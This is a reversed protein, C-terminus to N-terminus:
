ELNDNVEPLQGLEIIETKIESIALRKQHEKKDM